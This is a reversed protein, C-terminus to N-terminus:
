KSGIFRYKITLKGKTNEPTSIEMFCSDSTWNFFNVHDITGKKITVSQINEKSSDFTIISVNKTSKGTIEFELTTINKQKKDAVLVINQDNELNITKTQEANNLNFPVIYNHYAFYSLVIM